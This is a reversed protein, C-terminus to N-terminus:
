GRLIVPIFVGGDFQQKWYFYEGNADVGEILWFGNTFDSPPYQDLVKAITVTRGGCKIVDGRKAKM